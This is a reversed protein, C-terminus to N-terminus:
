KEQEKNEKRKKTIENSELIADLFKSDIDKKLININPILCHGGIVGPFMIPRPVKHEIDMTCTENFRTVAKKFDAGFLECIRDMEQHFAINIAYYTTSFLKGLETDLPSNLIESKVGITDFHEKALEGAKESTPGIFKVFSLIGKELNPHRGRM